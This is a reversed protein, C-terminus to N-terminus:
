TSFIVSISGRLSRILNDFRGGGGENFQLPLLFPLPVCNVLSHGISRKEREIKKGKTTTQISRGGNEEKGREKKRKRRRRLFNSLLLPPFFLLSFLPFQTYLPLPPSETRSAKGM